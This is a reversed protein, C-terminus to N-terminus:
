IVMREQISHLMEPKKGRKQQIQHWRIYAWSKKYGRREAIRVMEEISGATHVARGLERRDNINEQKQAMQDQLLRLEGEQQELEARHARGTSFDWGCHPCMRATSQFWMLCNECQKVLAGADKPKKTKVTGDLSWERNWEPLGHRQCNGVHDLIIAEKKGPYTRLIRGMQQLCLNLSHTPRLMIGAGVVPIDTGESIIDCSWLVDIRREALDEIMRRRQADGLKGHIVKSQVGAANFLDATHQAHAISCCFGITPMGTCHRAYHRLVDGTIKPKDVRETAAHWDFDGGSLKVGTMDIGGGVDPGYCAPRALYGLDILEQVTPGLIMKDFCGGGSVGLPKGDLRCPTATVGLIRANTWRSLIDRWTKAMVHHCEDIIVIDPERVKDIRRALTQVSSVQINDGTMSHGPSIIGHTLGLKELHRSTQGLLEARHTLINVHNGRAATLESIACFIVTKGSGTPSVVLPARAGSQFAERVDSIIKSQFPRLTINM